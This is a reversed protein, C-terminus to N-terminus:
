LNIIFFIDFHFECKFAPCKDKTPLCITLTQFSDKSMRKDTCIFYGHSYKVASVGLSTYASRLYMWLSKIYCIIYFINYVVEIWWM